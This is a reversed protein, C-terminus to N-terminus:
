ILSYASELGPLLLPDQDKDKDQVLQFMEAYYDIHSGMSGPGTGLGRGPGPGM